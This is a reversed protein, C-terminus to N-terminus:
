KSQMLIWNPYYSQISKGTIEARLYKRGETSTIDYHNAIFEELRIIDTSSPYAQSIARLMLVGVGFLYADSPRSMIMFGMLHFRTANEMLANRMEHRLESYEELSFSFNGSVLPVKCTLSSSKRSVVLSRLLQSPATHDSTNRLESAINRALISPDSSLVDWRLAHSEDVNNQDLLMLRSEENLREVVPDLKERWANYVVVNRNIQRISLCLDNLASDFESKYTLYSDLKRSRVGELHKLNDQTSTSLEEEIASDIDELSISSIVFNSLGIDINQVSNAIDWYMSSIEAVVEQIHKKQELNAQNESVQYAKHALIMAVISGALATPIGIILGLADATPSWLSNNPFFINPPTHPLISFALVTLFSAACLISFFYLITTKIKM